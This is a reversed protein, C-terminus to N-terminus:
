SITPAETGSSYLATVPRNGKDAGYVRLNTEWVRRIDPVLAEDRKARACRLAPNRRRVAHRRYGSPAIQLVRWIPEVGYQASHKDVFAKM